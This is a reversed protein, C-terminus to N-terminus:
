QGGRARSVADIFASIKDTAWKFVSPWGDGIFGIIFAVPAILAREALTPYHGSILAAVAATLLVAVVITRTFFWVAGLRTQVPRRALAFSAGVSSAILIVIYPGVIHSVEHGFIASSLAGVLAMISIDPQTRIM